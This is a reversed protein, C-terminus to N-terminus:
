LTENNYRKRIFTKTKASCENLYHSLKSFTSMLYIVHEIDFADLREVTQMTRELSWMIMRLESFDEKLNDYLHVREHFHLVGESVKNNKNTESM